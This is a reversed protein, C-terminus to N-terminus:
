FPIPVTSNNVTPDNPLSYCTSNTAFQPPSTIPSPGSGIPIVEATFQPKSPIVFATFNISNVNKPPPVLTYQLSFTTTSIVTVILAMHNLEVMGYTKPVNLRVISGTTLYHNSSTTVVCPNARTIASIPSRPAIFTM